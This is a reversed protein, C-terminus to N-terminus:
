RFGRVAEDLVADPDTVRDGKWAIHQDPRVLLVPGSQEIESLPIGRAAAAAVLAASPEAPGLVTLEPGLLDYLPGGAVIRHPLRGGPDTRPVYGDSGTAHTGASPGYGYGFVLDDAHFEPTKTRMIKAADSESSDSSSALDISLAAMNSAAVEITQAAIPRREAEYSDLLQEPAWGHLVAALKWGLNVADGVGTNFGHGGWPPNQHAADGVLFLRGARYRDALLMRAQWPDTAVIAVDIDAGALGRVIEVAHAESTISETGTSIAWWTGDLDLPGVVGPWAPDITWYHISPPHPISRALEHSRFTINVNPRGGASGEYRAGMAGRVVSRPGDAGIVWGATLARRDGEADEIVVRAVDGTQSVQVARFGWLTEVGPRTAVASRLVQEVVGQSIQQGREPSVSAPTSLGLCGDIHTVEPGALTRVFTVRDSWGAPLPAALRISDAVGWRRFHEMTRASTTKARPRSHEVVTRPEVLTSSVGHHALELALSLGVPGAGVIIVDHDPRTM